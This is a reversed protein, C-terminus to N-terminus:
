DNLIEILLPPFPFVDPAVLDYDAEKTLNELHEIGLAIPTPSNADRSNYWLVDCTQVDILKTPPVSSWKIELWSSAPYGQYIGAEPSSDSQKFEAIAPSFTSSVRKAVEAHEAPIHFTIGVLTRSGGDCLLDGFVPWGPFSTPNRSERGLLKIGNNPLSRNLICCRVPDVLSFIVSRM